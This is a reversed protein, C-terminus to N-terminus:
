RTNWTLGGEIYLGIRGDPDYTANYVTDANRFVEEEENKFRTHTWTVGPGIFWGIRKAQGELPILDPHKRQMLRGQAFAGGIVLLGFLILLVSRM